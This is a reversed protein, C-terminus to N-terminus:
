RTCIGNRNNDSKLEKLINTINKDNLLQEFKSYQQALFDVLTEDQQYKELGSEHFIAHIMEHRMVKKHYEDINNWTNKSDGTTFDIILKHEYLEALGDAGILKPNENETQSVIEYETGLISQKM